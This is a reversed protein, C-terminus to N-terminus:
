QQRNPLFHSVTASRKIAPQNSQSSTLDDIFVLSLNFKDPVHIAAFFFM